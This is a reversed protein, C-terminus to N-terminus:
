WNKKKMPRKKVDVFILEVKSYMWTQRKLLVGTRRLMEKRIKKKRKPTSSPPTVFMLDKKKKVRDTRTRVNDVISSQFVNMKEVESTALGGSGGDNENIPRSESEVGLMDNNEEKLGDASAIGCHSGELDKSEKHLESVVNHVTVDIFDDFNSGTDHALEFNFEERTKDIQEVDEDINDHKKLLFKKGESGFRVYGAELEACRKKLLKIEDIQEIVIKGIRRVESTSEVSKFVNKIDVLNEEDCLPHISLVQTTDICRLSSEAGAATLPIKSKGWRFLRPYINLSHRVGLTPVTEYM